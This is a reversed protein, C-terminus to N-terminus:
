RNSDTIRWQAGSPAPIKSMSPLLLPYFRSSRIWLHETGPQDRTPRFHLPCVTSAKAGPPSSPRSLSRYAAPLRLHGNIRPNGFPAVRRAPARWGGFPPPSRPSSFCRLVRLLLFYSHNRLYHRAFASSGLGATDLRRPPLLVVSTARSPSTSADPFARRLPHCGRVRSGRPPGTPDPTARPM